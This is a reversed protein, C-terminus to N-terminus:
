RRGGCRRRCPLQGCLENIGRFAWITLILLAAGVVLPVLVRGARRPVTAFVIGTALAGLALLLQAAGLGGSPNNVVTLFPIFSFTDSMVGINLLTELPLTLLLAVPVVAAVAALRRRGRCAESFGSRSRWCCSRRSTSCTASRSVPFSTPHTSGSRLPSYSSRRFRSRSSPGSRPARTRRVVCRRARRRRDDRQCPDRRRAADARRLPVHDMGGGDQPQLRRGDGRLLRGARLEVPRGRVEAYVLYGVGGVLM